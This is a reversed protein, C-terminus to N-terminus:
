RPSVLATKGHCRDARAVQLRVDSHIGPVIGSPKAGQVINVDVVDDGMFM